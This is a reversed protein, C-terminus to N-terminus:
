PTFMAIALQRARTDWTNGQAAQILSIHRKGLEAQQCLLAIQYKLEETTTTVDILKKFLNVQDCANTAVVPKGAALHDYLRMPSCAHNLPTFRYPILAVDIAQMWIPIMCHPQHGTIICKPHNRVQCPIVDECSGQVGGVMVLSGVQPLELCSYIAEFDLRDNIAGVVGVLPHHLGPFAQILQEIRKKDIEEISNIDTANPSVSVREQSIGYDSIARNALVQSVFFSHKVSRVLQAEQSLIAKGGWREYQEYDDSCYYFTPAYPSAKRALELYHPSTVM